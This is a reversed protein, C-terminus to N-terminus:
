PLIANLIVVGVGIIGGLLYGLRVIIKLEKHTVKKVLEEMRAPPFELVKEEVRRAVDIQEIVEPVQTQLWEWIPDGLAGELSRVAAPPLWDAPTGIPRTMLNSALRTAAERYLTGAAQSRAGSVLWEAVREPPLKEFVEIVALEVLGHGLERGLRLGIDGLQPQALREHMFADDAAQKVAADLRAGGGAVEVGDNGADFAPRSDGPQVRDEDVVAVRERM